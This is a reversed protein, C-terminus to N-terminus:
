SMHFALCIFYSALYDNFGGEEPLKEDSENDDSNERLTKKELSDVM